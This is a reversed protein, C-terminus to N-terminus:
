RGPAGLSPHDPAARAFSKYPMIEGPKIVGDEIARALLADKSWTPATWGTGCRSAWSPWRRPPSSGPLSTFRRRHLVLVGTWGASGWSWNLALMQGAPSAATAATSAALAIVAVAWAPGWGPVGRLVLVSGATIALTM